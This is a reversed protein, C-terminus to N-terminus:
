NNLKICEYYFSVQLKREAKLKLNEINMEQLRKYVDRMEDKLRQNEKTIMENEEKYKSINESTFNKEEKTIKGKEEQKNEGLSVTEKALSSNPKNKNVRESSENSTTLSNKM